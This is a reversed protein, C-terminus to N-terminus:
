PNLSQAGGAEAPILPVHEWWVALWHKSVSDYQLELTQSAFAPPADGLQLTDPNHLVQRFFVIFGEAGDCISCQSEKISATDM